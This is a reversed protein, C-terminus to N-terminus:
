THNEASRLREEVSEYRHGTRTLIREHIYHLLRDERDLMSVPAPQPEEEVGVNM